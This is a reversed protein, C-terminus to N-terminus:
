NHPFFSSSLNRKMKSDVTWLLIIKFYSSFRSFKCFVIFFSLYYIMGKFFHLAINKDGILNSYEARLIVTELVLRQYEVNNCPFCKCSEEHSLFDPLKIFPKKFTPSSTSYAETATTELYEINLIAELGELKVGADSSNECDM